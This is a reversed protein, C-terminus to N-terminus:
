STGSFVIRQAICPYTRYLEWQRDEVIQISADAIAARFPASAVMSPSTLEYVALYKPVVQGEPGDGAAAGSKVNDICKYTRVRLCEEVDGLGEFVQRGWIEFAEDGALVDIGHTVVVASPNGVAFSSTRPSPGSDGVLEYCRRDLLALRRLIDAERPSRTRRLSTYSPHTFISPSDVDYVALWSPTSADTTSFRAGTLFSPLLNLRLPVHENNYWDQFEHLSVNRGPESLVFLLGPPM